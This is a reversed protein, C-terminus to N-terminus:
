ETKSFKQFLILFKALKIVKAPEIMPKLQSVLAYRAVDPDQRLNYCSQVKFKELSENEVELMQTGEISM